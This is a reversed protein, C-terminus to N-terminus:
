FGDTMHNQDKVLQDDIIFSAKCSTDLARYVVELAEWTVGM